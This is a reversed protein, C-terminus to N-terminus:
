SPLTGGPKPAIRRCGKRDVLVEDLVEGRCDKTLFVKVRCRVDYCDHKDNICAPILNNFVFESGGAMNKCGVLGCSLVAACNGGTCHGIPAIFAGLGMIMAVPLMSLAIAYNSKIKM